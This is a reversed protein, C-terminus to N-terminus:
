SRSYGACSVQEEVLTFAVELISTETARLKAAAGQRDPPILSRTVLSSVVDESEYLRELQQRTRDQLLTLARLKFIDNLEHSRILIHFTETEETVDRGQWFVRLASRSGDTQQLVRFELGDEENLCMFYLFPSEWEVVEHVQSLTVIPPGSFAALKAKGLPDDPIPELTLVLSKSSSGADIFGYNFLMEAPSKLAGYSISIESGSVLNVDPRLLLAVSHDSTEEYYANAEVAHNVMDLCPVLSEGTNPLELCRIWRILM